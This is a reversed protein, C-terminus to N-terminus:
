RRMCPLIRSVIYTCIIFIFVYNLASKKGNLLAYLLHLIVRFYIVQCGSTEIESREESEREDRAATHTCKKLIESGPLLVFNIIAPHESSIRFISVNIENPTHFQTVSPRCCHNRM